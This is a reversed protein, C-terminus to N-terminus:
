DIDLIIIDDPVPVNESDRCIKFILKYLCCEIDPGSGKFIQKAENEAEGYYYREESKYNITISHGTLELWKFLDGAEPLWIGNQAILREYEYYSSRGGSGSIIYEKGNFSFTKGINCSHEFQPFSFGVSHLKETMELTLM